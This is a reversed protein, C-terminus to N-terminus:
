AAAEPLVLVCPRTGLLRLDALFEACGPARVVANPAESVALELCWDWQRPYRLAATEVQHLAVRTVGACARLKAAEERVWRADAAASISKCANWLVLIRM